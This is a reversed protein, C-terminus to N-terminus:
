VALGFVLMTMYLIYATGCVQMYSPFNEQLQSKRRGQGLGQRRKGQKKEEVMPMLPFPEEGELPPRPLGEEGELGDSLLSPQRKARPKFRPKVVFGGVGTFFM